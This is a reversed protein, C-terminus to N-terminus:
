TADMMSMMTSVLFTASPMADVKKNTKMKL